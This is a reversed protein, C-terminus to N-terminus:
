ELYKITRKVVKSLMFQLGKQRYSFDNFNGIFYTNSFPNYFMYAGTAGAVGWSSYKEPMLVPVKIINWIGYGYEIGLRFRATNEKMKKITAESILKNSVLAKMFILLDSATSIIGGGSFDLRSYNQNKNLRTGNYFFDAESLESEEIPSSYQNMYSNKMNLPIFIKEKLVEHFPIKTISEIILGLLHYNTDTYHFGEGPKFEAEKNNKIWNIADIVEFKKDNPNCVDELCDWFSDALGSTHNLLHGIEITQSYEKDKYVHIREMIENDIYKTIKDDFKLKEEEYLISIITSTFIKGVSAM